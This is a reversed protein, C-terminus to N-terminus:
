SSLSGYLDQLRLVSANLSFGREVRERGHLGISRRLDPDDMLSELHRTLSDVDGPSFLLGDVPNSVAEAIAGVRTVVVPLGMAMAELMSMPLAEAHSPLCFCDAERMWAEKQAGVIPGDISVHDAVGLSRALRELAAREGPLSEAGALHVHVRDHHRMRSVAQLLDEQGKNAGYNALCAIHFVGRDRFDVQAGLMVGNPVVVLRSPDVMSAFTARAFEGLLVVRNALRLTLRAAATRWRGLSALFEAFRGGHVHLVVKRFFLRAVVVDAASRWFTFQSCTHIHVVDPRWVACLAVLRGLLKLQALVGQWLPRDVPTSKANNLVRVDAWTGLARELNRVVTAMGGVPPPLPGVQLVRLRADM